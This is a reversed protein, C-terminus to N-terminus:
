ALLSVAGQAWRVQPSDPAFGEALLSSERERLASSLSNIDAPQREFPTYQERWANALDKPSKSGHEEYVKKWQQRYFKADSDFETSKSYVPRLTCRCNNHVKSIRIFDAPVEIARSNATFGADSDVFSHKGYVAGRSALLACFHCPDSDTFRAYGLVKRDFKLITNTVNRAGKLSQRVAAGSTNVQASSMAEVPDAVPMQEKVHYNSEVLLSLRVDDEPFEDFAIPDDALDSGFSPLNFRGSPVGLPQEVSPVILAQPSATALSAFRVNAAFAAAVRQSQLYATRVLPVAAEVYLMSTHDLDEFNMMWWLPFLSLMLNDAIAEQDQSHKQELAEVVEPLPRIAM